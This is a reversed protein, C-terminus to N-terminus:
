CQQLQAGGSAWTASGPGTFGEGPGTLDVWRLMPLIKQAITPAVSAQRIYANELERTRTIDEVAGTCDGPAREYSLVELGHTFWSSNGM